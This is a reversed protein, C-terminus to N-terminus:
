YEFKVIKVFNEPRGNIFLAWEYNDELKEFYYDRDKEPTPSNSLEFARSTKLEGRRSVVFYDPKVVDLDIRRSKLCRGDFFPCLTSTNSWIVLNQADPLSNLYQAAEYFGHGWSHHATFQKPLLFNTYSFYFPRATWLIVAGYILIAMSAALMIGALPPRARQNIGNTKKASIKKSDTIKKAIEWLGVAALFSFLAYLVISYRVNAVVRTFVTAAFYITFFLLISFVSQSAISGLKGKLAKAALYAIILLALPTLSFIFPYAEMLLLKSNKELYSDEKLLNKFHFRKPESAYATDRMEDLPAFRQGSWVNAFLPVVVALFLLCAAALIMKKNRSLFELIRDPFSTKIKLLVYIALGAAIVLLFNSAGKFQSIGKLLLEPRVFVAPLFVSFIAVSSVFVIFIDSLGRALDRRKAEARGYEGFIAKAILALLYFIFITIATYKSLFAFGTFVACLALFKKKGTNLRAFFAFIALGSFIWFYSDPNIIQSIGVLIPNLAILMVSFLALWKSGFAKWILWFFMFLSLSALILVPLRFVFNIRESKANDYALFLGGRTAKSDRILHKEPEPEFLLGAGSFLAVTVGPKDNIYTQEWDKDAIAQWYQKIRVYKWLHEDTTEFKALHHLGFFFFLLVSAFLFFCIIVKENKLNM